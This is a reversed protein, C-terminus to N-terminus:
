AALAHRQVAAFEVPRRVVFGLREYVRQAGDNGHAVHLIPTQGRDIIANAVQHSLLSALGRGRASPHTCVASIEAFRDTQLREGAMALLHGDDDFVGYYEGLDITRPRFPGPQAIDILAQMQPVHGPELRTVSADVGASPRLSALVMQNGYGGWPKTWSGAPPTVPEARTVIVRGGDPVVEGLADWAEPDDLAIAAFVTVDDPYRRALSGGVAFPAHVTSLSHWAVNDLVAVDADTISLTTM